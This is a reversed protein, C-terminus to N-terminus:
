GNSVLVKFPEKSLSVVLMHGAEVSATRVPPNIRTSLRLAVLSITAFDPAGERAGNNAAADTHRTHSRYIELMPHSGSFSTLNEPM